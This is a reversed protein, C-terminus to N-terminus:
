ALKSAFWRGSLRACVHVHFMFCIHKPVQNIEHLQSKRPIYTCKLTSNIPLIDKEPIIKGSPELPKIDQVAKRRKKKKKSM